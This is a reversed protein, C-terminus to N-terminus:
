PGLDLTYHPFALLLHILLLIRLLIIQCRSLIQILIRLAARYRSAGCNPVSLTFNVECIITTKLDGFYFIM